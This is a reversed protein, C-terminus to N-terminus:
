EPLAAPALEQIAQAELVRLEEAPMASLQLAVDHLQEIRMAGQVQVQKAPFEDRLQLALAVAQRQEKPDEVEMSDTIEGKYAAVVTRKAHTLEELKRLLADRNLGPIADMAEVIPRRMKARQVVPHNPTLPPM